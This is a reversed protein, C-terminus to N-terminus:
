QKFPTLELSLAGCYMVTNCVIMQAIMFGLSAGLFAFGAVLWPLSANVRGRLLWAAVSAGVFMGPLSFLHGLGVLGGDRGLHTIAAMYILLTMIAAATTGTLFLSRARLILGPLVILAPAGVLYWYGFYLTNGAIAAYVLVLTVLVMSYALDDRFVM